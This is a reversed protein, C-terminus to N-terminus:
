GEIELMTLEVMVDEDGLGTENAIKESSLPVDSLAALIRQQPETLLITAPGAGQDEELGMAELVQRPHDVLTAGDRILAHSGAYGFSSIPGPVVMVERGLEAAAGATRLAGSKQPAEIVVVVQSMAAITPNRLPFNGPFSGTGVPFQSVALGKELIREYLARHSSPYFTDIGTGMVAVSAGGGKIAGEAAAADIGFAGGSVITVGARVLSEAFKLACAQGYPSCTRTGIIAATPRDLVTRDGLAFLAPAAFPASAYLDNVDRAPLVFAGNGLAKELVKPNLRNLKARDAPRFEPHSLLATVPELSSTGLAEILGRFRRGGPDIALLYQWFQPTM